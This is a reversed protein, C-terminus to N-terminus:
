TLWGLWVLVALSNSWLRRATVLFDTDRVSRRCAVSLLVCSVAMSCRIEGQWWQRSVVRYSARMGATVRSPAHDAEYSPVSDNCSATIIRSSVLSWGFIPNVKRRTKATNVRKAIVGGFMFRNPHFRCFESYMTHSQGQCIKPAIRATAVAWSGPLIKTLYIVCSKVSKGDALNWSISFSCMSRHRLLLERFLIKFIKGNLPRKKVL